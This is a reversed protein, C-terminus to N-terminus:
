DLLILVYPRLRIKIDGQVSHHKVRGRYYPLFVYVNGDHSELNLQEVMSRTFFPSILQQANGCSGGRLDQKLMWEVAQM